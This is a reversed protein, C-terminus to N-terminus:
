LLQAKELGSVEVKHHNIKHTLKVPGQPAWINPGVTYEPHEESPM